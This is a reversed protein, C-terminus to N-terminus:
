EVLSHQSIWLEWGLVPNPVATLKLRVPCLQSIRTSAPHTNIVAYSQLQTHPNCSLLVGLPGNSFMIANKGWNKKGLFMRTHEMLATAWTQVVDKIPKTRTELDNVIKWGYKRRDTKFGNLIVNWTLIYYMSVVWIFLELCKRQSGIAKACYQM